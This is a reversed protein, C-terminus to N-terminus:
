TDSVSRVSETSESKDDRYENILKRIDKTPESVHELFPIDTREPFPEDSVKPVPIMRQDDVHVMWDNRFYDLGLQYGRPYEHLTIPPIILKPADIGAQLAIFAPPDPEDGWCAAFNIPPLVKGDCEQLFYIKDGEIKIVSDNLVVEHNLLLLPSGLLKDRTYKCCQEYAEMVDKSKWPNFMPYSHFPCCGDGDEEFEMEELEEPDGDWDELQGVFPKSPDRSKKMLSEIATESLRTFPRSSGCAGSFLMDWIDDVSNFDKRVTNSFSMSHFSEEDVKCNFYDLVAVLACDKAHIGNSRPFWYCHGNTMFQIGQFEKHLYVPPRTSSREVGWHLSNAREFCEHAYSALEADFISQGTMYCAETFLEAIQHNHQLQNDKFVLETRLFIKDGDLYPRGEHEYKQDFIVCTMEEVSNLDVDQVRLVPENYGASLYILLTYKSVQSRARDYYPTDLHSEFNADSPAFRNCRFIYNVFEFSLSLRGGGIEQLVDSTRLAETLARSLISSSFIFRDGGRKGKNLPAAYLNLSLIEKLMTSSLGELKCSFVNRHKEPQNLNAFSLHLRRHQQKELMSEFWDDLPIINEFNHYSLEVPDVFVAFLKPITAVQAFHRVANQGLKDDLAEIFKIVKFNASPHFSVTMGSVRVSELPDHLIWVMGDLICREHEGLSGNSLAFFLDRVGVAVILKQEHTLSQYQSKGETSDAQLQSFYPLSRLRVADPADCEATDFVLPHLKSSLEKGHVLNRMLTSDNREDPSLLCKIKTEDIVCPDGRFCWRACEDELCVTKVRTNRHQDDLTRKAKSKRSYDATSNRDADHEEGTSDLDHHGDM